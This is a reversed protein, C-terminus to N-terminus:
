GSESVKSDVTGRGKDRTVRDRENVWDTWDRQGNHMYMHSDGVRLRPMGNPKSAYLISFLGSLRRM